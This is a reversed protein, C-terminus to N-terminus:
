PWYGLLDFKERMICSSCLGRGMHRKETTGCKQCCPYKKSWSQIKHNKRHSVHSLLSFNEIRDDLTNENIHHVHETPLLKRKLHQEVVFRSRQIWDKHGPGIKIFVRLCKKGRNGGCKRIRETFLPLFNPHNEGKMNHGKKFSTSTAHRAM